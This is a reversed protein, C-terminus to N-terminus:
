LSPRRSKSTKEAARETEETKARRPDQTSKKEAATTEVQASEKEAATTEAATSGGAKKLISRDSEEIVLGRGSTGIIETMAEDWSGDDGTDKLKKEYDSAMGRIVAYFGGKYFALRRADSDAYVTETDFTQFEKKYRSSQYEATQLKYRLILRELEWIQSIGSLSSKLTEDALVEDSLGTVQQLLRLGEKYAITGNEPSIRELMSEIYDDWAVTKAGTAATRKEQTELYREEIDSLVAGHYSAAEISKKAEETDSESIAFSDSDGTGTSGSGSAANGSAVSGSTGAGGSQSAAAQKKYEEYRARKEALLGAATTDGSVGSLEQESLSLKALAQDTLQLTVLADELALASNTYILNGELELLTPVARVQTSTLGVLSYFEALAKERDQCVAALDLVYEKLEDSPSGFKLDKMLATLKSITNESSGYFLAEAKQNETKEEETLTGFGATGNTYVVRHTREMYGTQLSNLYEKVANEKLTDSRSQLDHTYCKALALDASDYSYNETAFGVSIFGKGNSNTGEGVPFTAYYAGKNLQITLGNGLNHLMVGGTLSSLIMEEENLPIFNTGTYLESGSGSTMKNDIITDEESDEAAKLESSDALATTVKGDVSISYVTNQVFDSLPTTRVKEFLDQGKARRYFTVGETTIFALIETDGYSYCRADMIKGAVSTDSLYRTSGDSFYISSTQGQDSSESTDNDKYYFVGLGSTAAAMEDTERTETWRFMTGEPFTLEYTKPRAEATETFYGTLDVTKGTMANMMQSKYYVNRQLPETKEIVSYSPIYNKLSYGISGFDVNSTGPIEIDAYRGVVTGNEYETCKYGLFVPYRYNTFYQEGTDANWLLYVYTKGNEDTVPYFGPVDYVSPTKDTIGLYTYLDSTLESGFLKEFNRYDQAAALMTFKSLKIEEETDFSISSYHSYKAVVSMWQQNESTVVGSNLLGGCIEGADFKSVTNLINKRGTIQLNLPAGSSFVTFDDPCTSGDETKPATRIALMSNEKAAAQADTYSDYIHDLGGVALWRANQADSSSNTSTFRIGSEKGIDLSYLCVLETYTGGIDEEDADDASEEDSDDPKVPDILSPTSTSWWASSSNGSQASNATVEVSISVYVFGNGDVVVDGISTEQTTNAKAVKRAFSAMETSLATSYDASETLKGATDYIYSNMEFFIFYKKQGVLKQVMLLKSNDSASLTGIVEQDQSSSFSRSSTGVDSLDGYGGFFVTYARTQPDYSMLVTVCRKTSQGAYDDLKHETIEPAVGRTQALEPETSDYCPTMYAYIFRGDAYDLVQFDLIKSPNNEHNPLIYFANTGEINYKAPDTMVNSVHEVAESISDASATTPPEFTKVTLDGNYIISNCGTFFVCTIALLICIFRKM